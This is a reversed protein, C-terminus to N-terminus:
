RGNCGEAWGCTIADCGSGHASHTPCDNPGTNAPCAYTCVNLKNGTPCVNGGILQNLNNDNLRKIVDKSLVLKKM